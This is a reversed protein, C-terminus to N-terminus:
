KHSINADKHRNHSKAINEQFAVVATGIFVDVNIAFRLYKVQRERSLVFGEKYWRLM